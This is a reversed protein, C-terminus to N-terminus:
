QEGEETPPIPTPLLAATPSNPSPLSSVDTQPPTNPGLNGADSEIPSHSSGLADVLGAEDDLAMLVHKPIPLASLGTSPKRGFVLEFSTGGLRDSYKTNLQWQVVKLGVVWSSTNNERQWVGLLEKLERNSREVSGQSQPHYPRGHVIKCDPWIKAVERFIEAIFETGNDSQLIRPAGIVTFM